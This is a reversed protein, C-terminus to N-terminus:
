RATATARRIMRGVEPSANLSTVMVEPHAAQFVRFIEDAFAQGIEDVGNFDLVVANFREFRAVLRKAQSRSVLREGDHQALRVPVVTRDFVFEDPQAFQDFVNRLVRASNNELELLVVTGVQDGREGILWENRGVDHIFQLARSLITFRDFARSTFFIGEGTHRAPDTTLKGKALEVIAEKPDVLKLLRQLRDFIGEGDDQIFGQGRVANFRLGVRLMRGGSHDIANNVMETVGYHWLARVNEPFGNVLSAFSRWVADESLEELPFERM